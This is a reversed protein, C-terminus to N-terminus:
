LLNRGAPHHDHSFLLRLGAQEAALLRQATERQRTMDHSVLRPLPRIRREAGLLDRGWAADGALLVEHEVLAGLHGRAHGPLDVLLYTGDGFLDATRLGHAGIEFEPLPLVTATRFWAPLLRRLLGDRLRPRELTRRVGESLIFEAHPFFRVGGIHDPHLHSLVVHTISSPDLQEAITDGAGVRPPLMKRYAWGTPGARWPPPAYGTDFLVRRSGSRYLFAGAPFVRRERRAGRLLRSMDHSTEGCAFYTLDSM